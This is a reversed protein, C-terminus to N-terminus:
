QRSFTQGLNSFVDGVFIVKLVHYTAGVGSVKSRYFYILIFFTCFLVYFIAGESEVYKSIESPVLFPKMKSKSLSRNNKKSSCNPKPHGAHLLIYFM